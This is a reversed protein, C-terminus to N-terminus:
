HGGESSRSKDHTAPYLFVSYPSSIFRTSRHVLSNIDITLDSSEQVKLNLLSYSDGDPTAKKSFCMPFASRVSSGSTQRYFIWCYPKIFVLSSKFLTMHCYKPRNHKNFLCETISILFYVTQNLNKILGHNNSVVM